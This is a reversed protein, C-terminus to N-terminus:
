NIDFSYSKSIETNNEKARIQRCIKVAGHLCVFVRDNNERAQMTHPPVTNTHESAGYHRWGELIGPVRFMNHVLSAAMVSAFRRWDNAM